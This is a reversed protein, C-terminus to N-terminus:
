HIKIPPTGSIGSVLVIKRKEQLKETLIGALKALEEPSYVGDVVIHYYAAIQALFHAYDYDVPDVRLIYMLKPHRKVEKLLALQEPPFYILYAM